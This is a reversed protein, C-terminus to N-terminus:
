ATQGLEALRAFSAALKEVKENLEAIRDRDKAVVEAPARAVFSENSLRKVLGELEKKSKAIEKELRTKEADLDIVGLLPVFVEAGQVVSAAAGKPKEGNQAAQLSVRGLRVLHGRERELLLLKEEDHTLILATIEKSPPIGTETRINRLAGVLEMVFGLEREAVDDTGAPLAASTPYAAIMISAPGGEPRPLKQWIEETIFPAIPHLLRLATELAHLLTAQAVAHSQPDAEAYLRPKALEIYWDCLEHWVFSYLAGAAENFRFEELAANVTDATKSLRSLLWRDALELRGEAKARAVAGAADADVGDLYMLSFRSANWLKNLFNRYGEVRDLSLKIDRGQAAFIALTFRLADAGYKATLDLPDIVNGRTKSMKEGKEDRVMAHLFVTKFPVKGDNFHIGMMMMRAVWFFLIDFGTEMVTNPDYKALEATDGPWGLTSFPWLGSSFWTDLVDEDQALTVGEGLASRAAAYAAAEDRAVFVEGTPAYWAPIRHGWWLQRSVCWDRINTMWHFYTKTWSEPIIKTEGTEVAKIAPQALVDAKVFWQKSLWPEVITDCRQCRGLALLHPKSERALGREALAEKVAKRAEFRELGAFPGGEDNLRADLTLINVQPLGHRLGCEFDNFDHAPTVKVAGTGFAPDVLVDDAIVIVVRHPVFPHVLTKGLLHQYRADDPHVAVASDGLMTEPRTTAVVVEDGDETKYAFSFLEGQAGEEHEVELDSLATHCRPCWNILRNARHCLGEEYLRVFVERVARSSQEDMTFRERSWDLSAGLARHQVQIRSGYEEKWQWVRELFKERGLEHRTKGEKAQLEREVVMQTAIGAHDTGPMWLTNRGQMRRFRILTDQITATLAHGLHLSGTVNPPPLVICYPEGPANPDAHFFGSKEWFEYWRAEGQAPDYAKSLTEETTM